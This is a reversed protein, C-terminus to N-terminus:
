QHDNKYINGGFENLYKGRQIALVFLVEEFLVKMCMCLYIYMTLWNDFLIIYQILIHKRKIKCVFAKPKNCIKHILEFIYIINDNYVVVM